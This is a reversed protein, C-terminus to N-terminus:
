NNKNAFGRAAEDISDEARQMHGYFEVLKLM